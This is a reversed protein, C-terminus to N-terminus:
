KEVPHLDSEVQCRKRATKIIHRCLSSKNEELTMWLRFYVCPENAAPTVALCVCVQRCNFDRNGGASSVDRNRRLAPAAPPRLGNRAYKGRSYNGASNQIILPNWLRLIEM